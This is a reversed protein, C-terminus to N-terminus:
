GGGEATASKRRHMDLSIDDLLLMARRELEARERTLRADRAIEYRKLTAFGAELVLRNAAIEADVAAIAARIESRRAIVRQAYAPYAATALEDRVARAQEDRMEAELAQAQARRTAALGELDVLVRRLEDIEWRQVRILTALGRTAM